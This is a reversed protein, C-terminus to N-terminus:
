FRWTMPPSIIGISEVASKSAPACVLATQITGSSALAIPAIAIYM